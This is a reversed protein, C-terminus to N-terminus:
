REEPPCMQWFSDNVVQEKDMRIPAGKISAVARAIQISLAARFLRRPTVQVVRCKVMDEFELIELVQSCLDFIRGNELSEIAQPSWVATVVQRCGHQTTKAGARLPAAVWTGRPAHDEELPLQSLPSAPQGM